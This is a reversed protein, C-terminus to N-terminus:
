MRGQGSGPRGEREGHARDARELLTIVVIIFFSEKFFFFFGRIHCMIEINLPTQSFLLKPKNIFTHFPYPAASLLKFAM